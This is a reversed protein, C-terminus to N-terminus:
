PALFSFGGLPLRRELLSLSAKLGACCLVARATCCHQPAWLMCHALTLRCLRCLTYQIIYPYLLADALDFRPYAVDPWAARAQISRAWPPACVLYRRRAPMTHLTITCSCDYVACCCSRKRHLVFPALCKRQCPFLFRTRSFSSTAHVWVDACRLTCTMGHVHATDSRTGHAECTLHSQPVALCRLLLRHQPPHHAPPPPPPPTHPPPPRLGGAQYWALM